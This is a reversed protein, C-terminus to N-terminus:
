PLKRVVPRLPGRIDAYLVQGPSIVVYGERHAGDADVLVRDGASLDLNNAAFYHVRGAPSFRVGVIRVQQVGWLFDHGRCRWCWTTWPLGPM